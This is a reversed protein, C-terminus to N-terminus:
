APLTFPGAYTEYVLDSDDDGQTRYVLAMGLDVPYGSVGFLVM